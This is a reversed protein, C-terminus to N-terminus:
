EEEMIRDFNPLREVIKGCRELMEFLVGGSLVVRIVPDLAIDTKKKAYAYHVETPAIYYFDLVGDDKTGLMMVNNARFAQVTDTDKLDMVPDLPHEKFDESLKAHLERSNKWLQRIFLDEPFVIEVKNRLVSTGPKLKGFILSIGSRGRIVDCYDAYYARAPVEAKDYEVRLALTNEKPGTQTVRLRVAGTGLEYSPQKVLMEAM